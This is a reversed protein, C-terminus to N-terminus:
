RWCAACRTPSTSARSRTSWRPSACTACPRTSRYSRDTKVSDGLMSRSAATSPPISAPFRRCVRSVLEMVHNEVFQEEWWAKAKSWPQPPGDIRKTDRCLAVETHPFIFFEFHDNATPWSTSARWRRTWHGRRRRPARAHLGARLAADARSSASRASASARRACCSPTATPRSRTRTATPRSWSSRRSPTRSRALRAGTGHTSTSVAGAITQVDIDGLNPLALGHDDWLRNNLDHLNIGAEVTSSARATSRRRPHSQARRAAGDRRRHLAVDTFSHGSGVARM